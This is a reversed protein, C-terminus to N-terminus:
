TDAALANAPSDREDLAAIVMSDGRNWVGPAIGNKFRRLGYLLVETGDTPVTEIRQWGQLAPSRHFVPCRPDHSGAMTGECNCAKQNTSAHQPPPVADPQGIRSLDDNKTQLETNEAQLRALAALLYPIDARAHVIFEFDEAANNGNGPGCIHAVRRDKTRDYNDLTIGPALWCKEWDHGEAVVHWNRDRHWPWATAKEVRAQIADIRTQDLTM